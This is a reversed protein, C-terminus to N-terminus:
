ATTTPWRSCRSWCGRTPWRSRWRTPWGASRCGSTRRRRRDGGRDGLALIGVLQRQFRLPLVLFSRPGSSCCRRASLAPCRSTPADVAGASRAWRAPGPRGRVRLDVRAVHRADDCYDYVVGSLSKGGDPAVLTVGVMHCPFVDRTRALLTDVISPSTPPRRAGGPRDGRRHVAGPVPPRAADGDRQVVDALEEFEDRSTVSSGAARLRAPRDPPHGRAAGVLPVLSRRIQSGSLVLVGLGSLLVVWLFM